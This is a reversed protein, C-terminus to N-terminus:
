GELTLDFATEETLKGSTHKGMKFFVGEEQRWQIKVKVRECFKEKQGQIVATWTGTDDGMLNYVM